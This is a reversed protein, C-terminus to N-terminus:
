PVARSVASPDDPQGVPATAISTALSLVFGGIIAVAIRGADLNVWNVADGGLALALTQAATKVARELAQRWFNKGFTRAM